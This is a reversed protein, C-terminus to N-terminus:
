SKKRRRMSAIGGLGGLLLLASAPLPVVAPGVASLDLNSFRGSQSNAYVGVKGDTSRTAAVSQSILTTGGNKIEFMINGANVELSFSYVTNLSWFLSASSFLSTAVGGSEAVLWLGNNGSGGSGAVEHDWDGGGEWGLRYNNNADVFGFTLGITDNDGSFAQMTGSYRFNGSYMGSHVAHRDNNGSMEVTSASTSTPGSVSNGEPNAAASFDLGSLSAANAGTALLISAASIAALKFLKM